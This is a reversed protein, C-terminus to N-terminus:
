ERQEKERIIIRKEFQSAVVQDTPLNVLSFRHNLILRVGALTLSGTKFNELVSLDNNIETGFLQIGVNASTNQTAM